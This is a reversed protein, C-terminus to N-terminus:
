ARIFINEPLFAPLGEFEEALKIYGKLGPHLTQAEIQAHNYLTYCSSKLCPREMCPMLLFADKAKNWTSRVDVEYFGPKVQKGLRAVIPRPIYNEPAKRDRREPLFFGTSLPRPNKGSSNFLELMFEEKDIDLRKPTFKPEIGQKICAIDLATRYVDTVQAVYSPSQTRGEIKLSAPQLAVLEDMFPVLCLDSPAFIASFASGQEIEWCDEGQRFKEEVILSIENFKRGRYEFRCPQTCQGLNAPRKNVWASMLCHGSLALCMAGHVFIEFETDPFQKILASIDEKGLERALNIRQVGIERWFEVAASNVSHAQTSLHIEMGPCHKKALWLVGPDAIILADIGTDPLIKLMSVVDDLQRNYPMANLCYYIKANVAHAKEVGQRLEDISFGDCKARLSLENGSLYVADAGYLLATELQEPGGAPILLEPRKLM